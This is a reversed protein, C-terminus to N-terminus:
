FVVPVAGKLLALFCLFISHMETESIEFFRAVHDLFKLTQFTQDMGEGKLSPTSFELHDIMMKGVM